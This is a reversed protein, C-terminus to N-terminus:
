LRINIFFLGEQFLYSKQSGRLVDILVGIGVQEKLRKLASLAMQITITADDATPPNKCVDCNGCNEKLDEGFYALLIKRRCVEAEADPEIHRM